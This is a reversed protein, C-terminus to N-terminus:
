NNIKLQLLKETIKRCYTDANYYSDFAEICKMCFEKSHMETNMHGLIRQLGEEPKNLDYVIGISSMKDFKSFSKLTSSYIPVIGNALYNSLKTPTAVNNVAFNERLVFGYKMSKLCESLAEKDVCGVQYNHVYNKNLLKIAAEKQFTFVYFKTPVSSSLEIKKYLHVTQEFCQWQHLSGVYVFNNQKYKDDYFSSKVMEDENFCPMIVSKQGLKIAYKEEYHRQMEESVLLVLKAKKLIIKELQSLIIFRLKSHRRMYSEEPTIGQMWIIHNSYGKQIYVFATHLTDTVIFMDKTKAHSGKKVYEVSNGTAVCADKVIRMYTGTVSLDNSSKDEVIFSYM